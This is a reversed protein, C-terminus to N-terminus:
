RWGRHWGRQPHHWGWGYRPHYEWAYGVGPSAYAPEVYVVGPPAVVAAPRVRAPEVVCGALSIALLATPILIAIKNM